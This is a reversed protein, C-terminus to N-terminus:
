RALNLSEFSLATVSSPKLFRAFSIARMTFSLLASRSITPLWPCLITFSQINPSVILETRWITFTGINIALYFSGPSRMNMVQPNSKLKNTM